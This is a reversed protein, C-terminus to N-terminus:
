RPVRKRLSKGKCAAKYRRVGSARQDQGALIETEEGSSSEVDVTLMTLFTEGASSFLASQARLVTSLALRSYHRVMSAGKWGLVREVDAESVGAALMEADTGVKVGHPRYRVGPLMPAVADFAEHFRALYWGYSCVHTANYVFLPADQDWSAKAKGDLLRVRLFSHLATAPCLEEGLIRGVAKQVGQRGQDTKSGEVLVAWHGMHTVALGANEVIGKFVFGVGATPVLAHVDRVRLGVGARSAIVEASRCGMAFCLLLVAMFSRKELGPWLCLPSLVHVQVRRVAEVTVIPTPRRARAAHVKKVGDMVAGALTGKRISHDLPIGAQRFMSRCEMAYARVTRPALPPSALEAMYAMFATAVLESGAEPPLDFFTTVRVGRSFAWFELFKHGASAYAPLSSEALSAGVM